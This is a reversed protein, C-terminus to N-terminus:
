KSITYAEAISLSLVYLIKNPPGYLPVAIKHRFLARFLTFTKVISYLLLHMPKDKSTSLTINKM